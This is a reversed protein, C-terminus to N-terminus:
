TNEKPSPTCCGNLWGTSFPAFVSDVVVWWFMVFRLVYLVASIRKLM